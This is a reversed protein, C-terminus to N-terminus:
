RNPGGRHQFVSAARGIKRGPLPPPLPHQRRFDFSLDALQGRLVRGVRHVGAARVVVAVAM